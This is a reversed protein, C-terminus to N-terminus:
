EEDEPPLFEKMDWDDDLTLVADYVGLDEGGSQLWEGMLMCATYYAAQDTRQDYQAWGKVENGIEEPVPYTVRVAPRRVVEEIIEGKDAEIQERWDEPELKRLEKIYDASVVFLEGDERNRCLLVTAPESSPVKRPALYPFEHTLFDTNDTVAMKEQRAQNHEKEFNKRVNLFLRMANTMFFQLTMGTEISMLKLWRKEADRLRLHTMVINDSTGSRQSRETWTKIKAQSHNIKGM